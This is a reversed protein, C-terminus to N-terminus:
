SADSLIKHRLIASTNFLKFKSEKRKLGTENSQPKGLRFNKM